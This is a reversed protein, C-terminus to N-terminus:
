FVQTRLSKRPSVAATRHASAAPRWLALLAPDVHALFNSDLIASPGIYTGTLYCAEQKDVTSVCIIVDKYLDSDPGYTVVTFLDKEHAVNHKAVRKPKAARKRKAAPATYEGDKGGKNRKAAPATDEGDIDDDRKRKGRAVNTAVQGSPHKEIAQWPLEEIGKVEGAPTTLAM